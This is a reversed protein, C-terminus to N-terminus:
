LNLSGYVSIRNGPNSRDKGEQNLVARAKSMTVSSLEEKISM